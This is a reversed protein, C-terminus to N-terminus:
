IYKLIIYVYKVNTQSFCYVEEPVAQVNERRLDSQFSM